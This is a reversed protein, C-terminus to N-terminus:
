AEGGGILIHGKSSPVGVPPSVALLCLFSRTPGGESAAAPVGRRLQVFTYTPANPTHITHIYPTYIYIHIYTYIHITDTLSIFATRSHMAVCRCQGDHVKDCWGNASKELLPEYLKVCRTFDSGGRMAVGRGELFAPHEQYSHIYHAYIPHKSTHKSTNLPTYITYICTYRTYMPTFATIFTYLPHM